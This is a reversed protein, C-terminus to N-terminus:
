VPVSASSQTPPPQQGPVNNGSPVGNTGSNSNLLAKEQGLLSNTNGRLVEEQGLLASLTAAAGPTGAAVAAETASVQTQLVSLANQNTAIQAQLSAFQNAASTNGSAQLALQAQVALATAQSLAAAQQSTSIAINTANALAKLQAAVAAEANAENVNAIAINQNATALQNTLADARDNAHEAALIGWVALGAVAAGGIVALWAGTDMALGGGSSKGAPTQPAPKPAPVPAPVNTAIQGLSPAHVGDKLGLIQEQGKTIVFSESTKLNRVTVQGNIARVGATTTNMIAVNGSADNSATVEFPAVDIRLPTLATFGVIGSNMAIQVGRADRNVIIDTKESLEIKSGTGILVKAYGKEHSRVSDGSFLTGEQSIAVGRLDVSGVASVSGIVPRAASFDAASLPMTVLVTTLVLAVAMLRRLERSLM